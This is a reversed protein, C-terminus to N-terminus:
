TSLGSTNNKETIWRTLWDTAQAVPMPRSIFYGQVRDCGLDQLVDWDGQDEAGEAVVRLGLSHALNIIARVIVIDNENKHMGMVFSRDIKLEDVQLHKLYSLSSYGTGFDDISVEVRMADIAHLVEAAHQPDDMLMSETIELVIAEPPLQYHEFCHTVRAIFSEEKLNRASLNVSICVDMGVQRWAACQASAAELIWWTMPNILGTEEAMPIFMDPFIMGRTPHNWRVLAEFSPLGDGQTLLQPQYYLELGDHEIAYKLDGVLSLRAESYTNMDSQYFVASKQEKKAVYMAVEACQMLGEVNDAHEPFVAVGISASIQIPHQSGLITLPSALSQMMKKIVEEAQIANTYPLAVAFEDGGLRALTDSSRLQLRFRQAVEQLLVDGKHYGLTDNVEKFRNLDVMLFCCTVKERKAIQFSQQAREALLTRNPLGTLVDHLAQHKMVNKQRDLELSRQRLTDNLCEVEQGLQQYKKELTRLDAQLMQITQNM